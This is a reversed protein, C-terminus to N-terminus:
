RPPRMRPMRRTISLNPPRPCKSSRTRMVRRAQWVFVFREVSCITTFAALFVTSCCAMTPITMELSKWFSETVNLSFPFNPTLPNQCRDHTNTIATLDSPGMALSTCVSRRAYSTYLPGLFVIHHVKASFSVGSFETLNKASPSVTSPISCCSIQEVQL